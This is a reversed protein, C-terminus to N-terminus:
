WSISIGAKLTTGRLESGFSREAEFMVSFFQSRQTIGALAYTQTENIGHPVPTTERGSTREFGAGLYIPGGWGLVAALGLNSYDGGQPWLYQLRGKVPGGLPFTAAIEMGHGSDVEGRAPLYWAYSVMPSVISHTGPLPVPSPIAAQAVGAGVATLAAALV